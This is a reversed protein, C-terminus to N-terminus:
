RAEEHHALAEARARLNDLLWEPADHQNSYGYAAAWLEEAARQRAFQVVREVMQEQVAPATSEILADACAQRLMEVAERYEDSV